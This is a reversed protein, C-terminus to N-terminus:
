IAQNGLIQDVMDDAVVHPPTNTDRARQSIALVTDYIAMTKDTARQEDYGAVEEAVNILGGANIAYDPAYLIGRAHLREGDEPRALQNNAAGAVIKCQLAEVTDRNIAGGLACPAYVDCATRHIADASAVNAGLEQVVRDVLAEDVDAITLRAGARKLERCLNVGVNGVGQVAVHLGELSDTGLAVKVSAEIGRRVGLATFPSPDGSGGAGKSFGAVHPTIGRIVEMDSITTGSDETTIYRGRLGDVFRAFAAFLAARDFEGAPRMIVSKGGGHKVGALAAKATMARALRLADAIAAAEDTYSIFRCGGLSPGLRTDHIAVIACLGTNTDHGLHLEGYGYTALQEFIGM